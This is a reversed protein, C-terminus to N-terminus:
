ATAKPPQYKNLVNFAEEYINAPIDDLRELTTKARQSCWALLREPSAGKDTLMTALTDVQEESIRPKATAANGDDDDGSAINFIMLLLYRRGYSIGSAYAHTKTMVDGGKAGKGDAPMTVAFNRHYGGRSICATVQVTDPSSESTNFTISFGHRTYIPRMVRDLAGYSIYKSKTQANSSDASIRGMESQAENMAADFAEEALSLKVRDYLAIMEKVREVDATPDRAIELISSLLQVTAPPPTWPAPVDAEAYTAQTM